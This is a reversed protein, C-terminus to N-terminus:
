DRYKPHQMYGIKGLPIAKLRKALKRDFERTTIIQLNKFRRGQSIAHKKWYLGFRIGDTHENELYIITKKKKAEPNERWLKMTEGWDPVLYIKTKENIVHRYQFLTNKRTIMVSGMFYPLKWMREEDILLRLLGEGLMKRIKSFDKKSVIMSKRNEDKLRKAYFSYVESIRKTLKYDHTRTDQNKSDEM